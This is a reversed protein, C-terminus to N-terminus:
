SNEGSVKDPFDMDWYEREEMYDFSSCILYHGPRVKKISCDSASALGARVIRSVQSVKHVSKFITRQDHLWGDEIISRVDWKPRWGLPLFAKTESALLLHDDVITWFLPKIGYRDRAAIFVEKQSDYLSLSFEGRLKSLFHLGYKIYLAIAIECDSGSTFEYSDGLEDKSRQHEYFEGNVVAHIVGGKDHFPQEGARTPDNIALRV